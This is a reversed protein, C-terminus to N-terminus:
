AGVLWERSTLFKQEEMFANYQFDSINEKMCKIEKNHLRLSHPSPVSQIINQM